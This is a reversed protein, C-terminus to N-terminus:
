YNIKSLGRHRKQANYEEVKRKKFATLKQTDEETLSQQKLTDALKPPAILTPMAYEGNDDLATPMKDAMEILLDVSFPRGAADVENGTHQIIQDCTSFISQTFQTIMENVFSDIESVFVEIDFNVIADTPIQFSAESRKAETILEKGDIEYRHRCTHLTPTRSIKSLFGDEKFLQQYHKGILDQFINKM